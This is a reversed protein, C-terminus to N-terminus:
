QQTAQQVEGTSWPSYPVHSFFFMQFFHDDDVEISQVTYCASLLFRLAIDSLGPCLRHLLGGAVALLLKKGIDFLHISGAKTM